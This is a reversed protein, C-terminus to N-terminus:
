RSDTSEFIKDASSEVFGQFLRGDAMPYRYAFEYFCAPISCTSDSFTKLYKDALTASQELMAAPSGKILGGATNLEFGNQMLITNVDVLSPHNKLKNVNVTFHNARYGFASLWAAYESEQLLTQYDSFSLDWHTGSYIFANTKTARTDISALLPRVINNLTRSCQELRLESIFVKPLNEDPHQYHKAELKKQTFRYSGKEVYGMLQFHAALAEVDIGPLNVTRLAIHDNVIDDGEGLLNHIKWASPTVELYHEWVKAFFANVSTSM